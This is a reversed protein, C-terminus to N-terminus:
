PCSVFRHAALEEVAVILKGVQKHPVDFEQCFEYLLKNGTVCLKGKLAGLDQPYYVGAHIVGSNRSSQNEAKINDNKEFVFIEDYKQSLQYALACGVLGGGVITLKVKESMINEGTVSLKLISNFFM